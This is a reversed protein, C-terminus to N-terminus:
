FDLAAKKATDIDVGSVAAMMNRRVFAARQDPPQDLFRIAQDVAWFFGAADFHEFLFGSGRGNPADHPTLAEHVAGTEFAIPLTGYRLGISCPMACPPQYQMMLLFDADGYALRRLRDDASCVAIRSEAGLRYILTCMRKNFPKCHHHDDPAPTLIRLRGAQKKNALAVQL